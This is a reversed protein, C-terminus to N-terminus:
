PKHRRRARVRVKVLARIRAAFAPEVNRLSASSLLPNGAAGRFSAPCIGPSERPPRAAAVCSLWRTIRPEPQPYDEGEPISVTLSISGLAGADVRLHGPQFKSLAEKIQREAERPSLRRRVLRGDESDYNLDIKTEAVGSDISVDPLKKLKDATIAAPQDSWAEFEYGGISLRLRPLLALSQRLASVDQQERCNFEAIVEREADVELSYEGPAAVSIEFFSERSEPSPNVPESVSNTNFHLTLLSRAGPYPALVKTVIPIGHTFHPVRTEPDFADPISLIKVKPAPESTRHGLNELWREVAKSPAAPIVVRWLM